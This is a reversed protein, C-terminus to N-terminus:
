TLLETLKLITAKSQDTHTCEQGNEKALKWTIKNCEYYINKATEKEEKGVINFQEYTHDFNGTIGKKRLAQMVRGITIPINCRIVRKVGNAYELSCRPHGITKTMDDMSILQKDSMEWVFEDKFKRDRLHTKEGKIFKRGIITRVVTYNDYWDRMEVVTGVGIYQGLCEAYPLGHIREIILRAFDDYIETM